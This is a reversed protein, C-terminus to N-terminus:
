HMVCAQQQLLGLAHAALQAFVGIAQLAVDAQHRVGVRERFEQRLRETLEEGRMGLDVDIELLAQAILDDCGDGISLRIDADDCAGFVDGAQFYERKADIAEHEDGGGTMRESGLFADGKGLCEIAVEYAQIAGARQLSEQRLLGLAGPAPELQAHLQAAEIGHAPEDLAVDADADNRFGRGHAAHLRHRQAPDVEGVVPRLAVEGDAYSPKRVQRDVCLLQHAAEGTRSFSWPAHSMSLRIQTASIAALVIAPALASVMTTCLTCPTVGTPCFPNASNLVMMM